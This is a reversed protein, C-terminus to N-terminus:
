ASAKVEYRLGSGVGQFGGGSSSRLDAAEAENGVADFIALAASRYDAVQKDRYSESTESVELTNAIDLYVRALEPRAGLREAEDIANGFYRFAETSRGIAISVRASLRSAEVRERAISRVISLAKKASRRATKAAERDGPCEELRLVDLLLRTTRYAGLYYPALLNDRGIIAEARELFESAEGIDGGLAAIKASGSLALVHLADEQRIEYYVQMAKAAEELRRQEVLCFATEAHETSAAFEYGYESQLKRVCEIHREVEDFRGQRLCRAAMMGSYIDATWLRGARLGSQMVDESIDYRGSWDGAHFEVLTGM